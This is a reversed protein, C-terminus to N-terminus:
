LLFVYGLTASDSAVLEKKDQECKDQEVVKNAKQILCNNKYFVSVTFTVSKLYKLKFLIYFM